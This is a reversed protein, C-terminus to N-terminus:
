PRPRHLQNSDEGRNPTAAKLTPYWSLSTIITRSFRSRKAIVSVSCILVMPRKATVSDWHASSSCSSSSSEDFESNSNLADSLSNRPRRCRSWPLSRTRQKTARCYRFDQILANTRDSSGWTSWVTSKLGNASQNPDAAGAGSPVASSRSVVTLLIM